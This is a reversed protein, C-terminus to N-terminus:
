KTMVSRRGALAAAVAALTGAAVDVVYHEGTYVLALTMAAAYAWSILRWRGRSVSWLFAAILVPVAAHLSPMAAVPNSGAQTSALLEGVAGLGLHDWGSASLRQVPPALGLDSALWPPAAPYLVYVVMSGVTLLLVARVWARFQERLRFWVYATVLPLVVYHTVYVASALADYWHTGAGLLRDQLWVTPVEGFVARDAHAPGSVHLAAGLRNADGERIRGHSIPSTLWQAVAYAILIISLPSLAILLQAWAPRAAVGAEMSDPPDVPETRSPSAPQSM